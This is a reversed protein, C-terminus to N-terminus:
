LHYFDLVHSVNDNLLVIHKRLIKWSDGAPALTYECWGFFCGLTERRYFHTAWNVKVNWTGDANARPRINSLMHATRFPPIASAAKNTRLRLVRDELGTRDDYYILSMQSRPDTTYQTESDWQPVHYECNEDYLELYADWDRSDCYEAERFLFQEIPELPLHM